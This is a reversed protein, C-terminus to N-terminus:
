FYKYILCIIALKLIDLGELYLQLLHQLYPHIAFVPNTL